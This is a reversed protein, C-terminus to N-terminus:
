EKQKKNLSKQSFISLTCYNRFAATVTRYSLKDCILTPDTSNLFDCAICNLSPCQVYNTESGKHSHKRMILVFAHKMSIKHASSFGSFREVTIKNLYFNLMNLLTQSDKSKWTHKILRQICKKPKQSIPVLYHTIYIYHNFASYFKFVELVLGFDSFKSFCIIYTTSQFQM